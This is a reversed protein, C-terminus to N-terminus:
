LFCLLSFYLLGFGFNIVVTLNSSTSSMLFYAQTRTQKEKKREKKTCLFVRQFNFYMPTLPVIKFFILTEKISWKLRLYSKLIRTWFKFEHRRTWKRRRYGNCWPCRWVGRSWYRHNRLVDRVVQISTTKTYHNDNNRSSDTVRTRIRSWATPTECPFIGFEDFDTSSNCDEIVAYFHIKGIM